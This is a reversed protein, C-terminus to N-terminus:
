ARDVKLPSSGAQSSSNFGKTLSLDDSACLINRLHTTENRKEQKENLSQHIVKRELTKELICSLLDMFYQVM